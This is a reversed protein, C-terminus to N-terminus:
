LTVGAKNALYQETKQRETASVQRSLLVAGFLKGSLYAGTRQNRMIQLEENAFFGGGAGTAQPNTKDVGNEWVLLEQGAVEDLRGIQSVVAEYPSSTNVVTNLVTASVRLASQWRDISGSGTYHWMSGDITDGGFMLTPSNNSIPTNTGYALVMSMRQTSTMDIASTQMFDDVGDGQLYWADRVGAETVDLDSVVKQYATPGAGEELQPHWIYVGSVGDGQYSFNGSDDLLAILHLTNSAGSSQNVEIWFKYYGNDDPEIHATCSVPTGIVTGSSLDFDASANSIGAFIRVKSREASKARFLTPHPGAETEVNQRLRHSNLTNDEVLKWATNTGDPAIAANEVVSTREKGWVPNNFDETYTFLNRRGSVPVRGLLPRAASTTQTAHNGKLEKISQIEITGDFDTTPQIYFLSNTGSKIHYEFSGNTVETPGESDGGLVVYFNGNTRGTCTVLVKYHRGTQLGINDSVTDLGSTHTYTGDGNDTWGAGVTVGIGDWLEDGLELGQSKDLMLGVPDGAATVPTKGATDQYLTTLDSPDYWVGQEGSKFLAIPSYEGRKKFLQNLLVGHM